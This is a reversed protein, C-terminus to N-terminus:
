TGCDHVQSPLKSCLGEQNPMFSLWDGYVGSGALHRM